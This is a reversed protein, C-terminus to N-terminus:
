VPDPKPNKNQGKLVIGHDGLSGTLRHLLSITLSSQPKGREKNHKFYFDRQGPERTFYNIM